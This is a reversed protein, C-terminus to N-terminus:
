LSTNTILPHGYLPATRQAEFMRETVGWRLISSFFEGAHSRLHVSIEIFNKKGLWLQGNENGGEVQEDEPGELNHTTEPETYLSM